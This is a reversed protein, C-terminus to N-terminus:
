RFWHQFITLQVRPFLSWHFKLRFEFVKMSSFVNSFTTWSINNMEDRGWHTLCLFHYWGAYEGPHYIRHVRSILLNNIEATSLLFACLKVTFALFINEKHYKIGMCCEYILFYSRQYIYLIIFYKTIWCIDPYLLYQLVASILITNLM